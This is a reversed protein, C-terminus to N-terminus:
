RGNIEDSVRSWSDGLGVRNVYGMVINLLKEMWFELNVVGEIENDQEQDAVALDVMAWYFRTIAEAEDPNAIDTHLSFVQRAYHDGLVQAYHLALKQAPRNDESFNLM